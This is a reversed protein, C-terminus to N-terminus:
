WKSTDMIIRGRLILYLLCTLILSILAGIPAASAFVGVKWDVNGNFVEIWGTLALIGFYWAALMYRISFFFLFLGILGGVFSYVDKNGHGPFFFSLICIGITLYFTLISFVESFLIGNFTGAEPTYLWETFEDSFVSIGEDKIFPAKHTTTKSYTAEKKTEPPFPAIKKLVDYAEVIQKFKEEAEKNEQNVDPHYKKALRRYADKIEKLTSLKNVGLIRYHTLNDKM